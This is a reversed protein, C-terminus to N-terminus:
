EPRGAQRSSGLVGPYLNRLCGDQTIWNLMKWNWRMVPCEPLPMGALRYDWYHSWALRNKESLAKPKDVTGRPCGGPAECLLEHHPERLITFGGARKYVEWKNHDTIYRRCTDCDYDAAKPNDVRLKAGYILNDRDEKETPNEMVAQWMAKQEELPLDAYWFGDDIVWPEVFVADIAWGPGQGLTAQIVDSALARPM